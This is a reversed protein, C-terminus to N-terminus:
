NILNKFEEETIIKVGLKNAKELKAPGMNEGAVLIDTKGTVGSGVKGGYSKILEKLEDRSFGSFVGSVVLTKNEFVNGKSEIKNSQDLELKLGAEKLKDIMQLNQPNSFYSVLSEAIREGIENVNSIEEESAEIIKDITIFYEALKEAVTRGVYRIGLGYLVREFPIEKSKEISEIINQATKEKVSRTKIEGSESDEISFKLGVLEEYKLSFLDAMDRILGLNLLGKITKPGLTEINLANRSIFHEIRGSVQPPCSIENPCYHVAEGEKRELKTGCEPCEEIYEVKRSNSKRKSL